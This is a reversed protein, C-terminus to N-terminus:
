EVWNQFQGRELWWKRADIVILPIGNKDILYGTTSDFDTFKEETIMSISKACSIAVDYSQYPNEAFLAIALDPIIARDGILGLATAAADSAHIYSDHHLISVLDPIAEKASSGLHGLAIISAVRVDSDDVQLNDILDPLAILAQSGYKEIEYISVLRVAMDDSSMNRVLEPLTSAPTPLNASEEAIVEVTPMITKQECSSVFVSIAIVLKLAYVRNVM